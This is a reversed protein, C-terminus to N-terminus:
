LQHRHSSWGKSRKNKIQPRVNQRAYYESACTQAPLRHLDRAAWRAGACTCSEHQEAAPRGTRWMCYYTILRRRDESVKILTMPGHPAILTILPPTEVMPLRSDAAIAGGDRTHAKELSVEEQGHQACGASASACSRYLNAALKQLM